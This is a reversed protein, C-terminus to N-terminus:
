AKSRCKNIYTPWTIGTERCSGNLIVYPNGPRENMELHHIIKCSHPRHQGNIITPNCPFTHHLKTPATGTDGGADGQLPADM